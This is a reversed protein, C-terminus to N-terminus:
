WMQGLWYGAMNVLVKINWRRIMKSASREVSARLLTLAVSHTSLRSARAEGSPNAPYWGPQGKIEDWGWDCSLVIYSLGRRKRM